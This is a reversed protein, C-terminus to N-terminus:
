NAAATVAGSLKPDAYAQFEAFTIPKRVKETGIFFTPTGSVGLQRGRQKVWTLQTELQKNALCQDFDARSMGVQEAVAYIADLRVEQSVWQAQQQLYLNYLKFHDKAPTCRTVFWANGSSHGIPFERLIWRVKGTDIYAKKIADFADAHFARCYPCTLSAYEVVTLPADAKGLSREELPGPALLDAQTVTALAEMKENPAPVDISSMSKFAATKAAEESQFSGITASDSCASLMLGAALCTAAVLWYRGAGMVPGMAVRGTM